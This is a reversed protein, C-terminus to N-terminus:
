QELDFINIRRTSSAHTLRSNGTSGKCALIMICAYNMFYALPKIFKYQVWVEGSLKSNRITALSKSVYIYVLM